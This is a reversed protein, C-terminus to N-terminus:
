NKSFRSVKRSLLYSLSAILLTAFLPISSVEGFVVEQSSGMESFDPTYFATLIVGSLLQFGAYLVIFSIIFVLYKKM